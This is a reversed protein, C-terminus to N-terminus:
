NVRTEARWVPILLIHASTEDGYGVLGWLLRWRFQGSGNGDAKSFCSALLPIKWFTFQSCADSVHRFLGGGVGYYHRDPNKEARVLLGDAVSFRWFGDGKCAGLGLGGFFELGVSHDDYRLFRVPWPLDNGMLLLESAFTSEDGWQAGVLALKALRECDLETLGSEGKGSWVVAVRCGSQQVSWYADDFAGRM